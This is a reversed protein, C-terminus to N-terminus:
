WIPRPTTRAPVNVCSAEYEQLFDEYLHVHADPTRARIAEWDVADIVQVLTDIRHAFEADVMETLLRPARGMVTNEAKLERAVDVFDRGALPVNEIRCRCPSPSRRPAATPSSTIPTKDM